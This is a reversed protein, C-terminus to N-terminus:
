PNSEKRFVRYYRGERRIEYGKPIVRSDSQASGLAEVIIEESSPTAAHGSVVRVDPLEMRIERLLGYVPSDKGDVKVIRAGSDRIETCVARIEERRGMFAISMQEEGSMRFVSWWGLLHRAGVTSVQLSLFLLQLMVIMPCIWRLLIIEGALGALPALLFFEPILLRGGWPQWRFIGCFMVFSSVTVLMLPLAGASKRVRASLPLFPLLLALLAHVPAPVVDECGTAYFFRLKTGGLQAAPINTLPDDPPLGLFGLLSRCAEEVLAVVGDPGCAFQNSLNKVMVGIVAGPAHSGNLLSLAEGGLSHYTHLNRLSNPLIPLLALFLALPLCALLVRGKGQRLVSLAILVAVAPLYAIATGKAAMALGASLAALLLCPLSAMWEGKWLRIGILLPMLIFFSEAIDNKANSGEFFVVPVTLLFLIALAQGRASGGLARVLLTLLGCSAVLFVWQVLNHWHDGGSLVLLNLGLFETLVPHVNQYSYTADFHRVSGQMLWYVQRPLHYCQVDYNCPPSALAMVGITTILLVILLLCWPPVRAIKGLTALLERRLFGAPIGGSMWLAAILFGVWGACLCPFNLCGLASLTETLLLAHLSVLMCSVAFAWRWGSRCLIKLCVSCAALPVFVLLGSMSRLLSLVTEVFHLAM